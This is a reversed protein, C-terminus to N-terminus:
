TKNPLGTSEIQEGSAAVLLKNMFACSDEENALKAPLVVALPNAPNLVPLMLHWLIPYKQEPNYPFNKNVKLSLM